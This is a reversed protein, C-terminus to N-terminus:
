LNRLEEYNKRCEDLRNRWFDCAPLQDYNLIVHSAKLDKVREEEKSILYAYGNVAVDCWHLAKEYKGMEKHYQTLLTAYLLPNPHLEPRLFGDRIRWANELMNIAIDVDGCDYYVRSWSALVTAALPHNRGIYKDVLKSAKQFEETSTKYDKMTCYVRALHCLIEIHQLFSPANQTKHMELAQLLTAEAKKGVNQQNTWIFEDMQLMGKTAYMGVYQPHIKLHDALEEKNMQEEYRTIIDNIRTLSTDGADRLVKAILAEVFIFQM